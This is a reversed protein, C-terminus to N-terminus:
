CGENMRKQIIKKIHRDTWKSRASRGVLFVLDKYSLKKAIELLNQGAKEKLAAQKFRKDGFKLHRLAIIRVDKSRDKLIVDINEEIPLAYYSLLRVGSDKSKTLEKYDESKMRRTVNSYFMGSTDKELYIPILDEKLCLYNMFLYIKIYSNLDKHKSIRFWFCELDKNTSTKRPLDSCLERIDWYSLYNLIKVFGADFEESKIWSQKDINSFIYASKPYRSVGLSFKEFERTLKLKKNIAIDFENM